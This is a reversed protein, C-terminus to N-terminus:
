CAYNPCTGTTCVIIDCSVILESSADATNFMFSRYAMGFQDEEPKESILYGQLISSPCSDTLVDFSNETIPDSVACKVVEFEIGEPLKRPEIKIEFNNQTLCLGNPGRAICRQYYQMVPLFYESM